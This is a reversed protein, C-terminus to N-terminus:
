LTDLSFDTFDPTMVIGKLENPLYWVLLYFMSAQGSGINILNPNVDYLMEKIKTHIGFWFPLLIGDVSGMVDKYMTFNKAQNYSMRFLEYENDTLFQKSQNFIEEIETHAADFKLQLEKNEKRFEITHTFANYLPLLSKRFKVQGIAVRLSKELEPYEKEKLIDCVEEWLLNIKDTNKVPDDDILIKLEEILNEIKPEKELEELVKNCGLAQKLYEDAYDAQLLKQTLEAVKQEYKETENINVIKRVMSKLNDVYFSHIPGDAFLYNVIWFRFCFLKNLRQDLRVLYELDKNETNEYEKILKDLGIKLEESQEDGYKRFGEPDAYYKKAVEEYNKIIQPFKSPYTFIMGEIDNPLFKPMILLYEPIDISM